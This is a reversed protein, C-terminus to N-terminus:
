FAQPLVAGDRSIHEEFVEGSPIATGTGAPECGLLHLFVYLFLVVAYPGDYNANIVSQILRTFLDGREYLGGQGSISPSIMSAKSDPDVGKKALLLRVVAEHGDAAV